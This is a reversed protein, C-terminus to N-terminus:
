HIYVGKKFGPNTRTNAQKHSPMPEDDFRNPVDISTLSKLRSCMSPKSIRLFFFFAGYLVKTKLYFLIQYVFEPTERSNLPCLCCPAAVPATVVVISATPPFIHTYVVLGGVDDVVEWGLLVRRNRVSYNDIDAAHHRQYVLREGFRKGGPRVTANVNRWPVRARGRLKLEKRRTSIWIKKRNKKKCSSQKWNRSKLLEDVFKWGTHQDRLSVCQRIKDLPRNKNTTSPVCWRDSLMGGRENRGGEYVCM